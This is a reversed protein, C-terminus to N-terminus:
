QTPRAFLLLISDNALLMLLAVAYERTLMTAAGALATFEHPVKIQWAEVCIRCVEIDKITRRDM